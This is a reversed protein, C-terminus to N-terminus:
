ASEECPTATLASEGWWKEECKGLADKYRVQYQDDSDLFQARGIVIGKEGSLALTVAAELDFRFEPSM